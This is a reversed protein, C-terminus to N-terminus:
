RGPTLVYPIPSLPAQNENFLPLRSSLSAPAAHIGKFYRDKGGKLSARLICALHKHAGRKSV